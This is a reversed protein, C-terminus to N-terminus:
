LQLLSVLMVIGALTVLIPMSANLQHLLKVLTVKTFVSPQHRALELVAVLPVLM